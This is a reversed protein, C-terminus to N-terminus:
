KCMTKYTKCDNSQNAPKVDPQTIEGASGGDDNTPGEHADPLPTDASAAVYNLYEVKGTYNSLGIYWDAIIGSQHTVRVAFVPGAPLQNGNIVQMNIVQGASAISPYCGSGGTQFAITQFLQAGLYQFVIPPGCRQFASILQGLVPRPDTHNTFQQAYLAQTSFAWCFFLTVAARFIPPLGSLKM